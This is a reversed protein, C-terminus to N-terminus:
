SIPLSVEKLSARARVIGWECCGGCVVVCFLSGMAGLHAFVHVEHEPLAGAEAAVEDHTPRMGPGERLCHLLQPSAAPSRASRTM